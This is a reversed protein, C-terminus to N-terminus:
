VARRSFLAGLLFGICLGGVAAQIPYDRVIGTASKGAQSLLEPARDIMDQYTDKSIWKGNTSKETVNKQTDTTANPMTIGGSQFQEICM